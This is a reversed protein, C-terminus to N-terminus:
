RRRERGSAASRLKKLRSRVASPACGSLNLLGSQSRLFQREVVFPTPTPCYGIITNDLLWDTLRHENRFCFYRKGPIRHIELGLASQLVLGASQRLNSQRSDSGFHQHLRGHLSTLTAGVYLLPWLMFPPQDDVSLRLSRNVDNERDALVIVYAGPQEPIADPGDALTRAPIMQFEFNKM